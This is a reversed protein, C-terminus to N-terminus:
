VWIDVKILSKFIWIGFIRLYKIRKRERGRIGIEEGRFGTEERLRTSFLLFHFFLPHAPKSVTKGPVDAVNRAAVPAVARRISPFMGTRSGPRSPSSGRWTWWASPRQPRRQPWAPLKPMAAFSAGWVSPGRSTRPPDPWAPSRPLSPAVRGPEYLLYTPNPQIVNRWNPISVYM